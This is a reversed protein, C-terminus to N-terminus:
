HSITFVLKAGAADAGFDNIVINHVGATLTYTASEPHDGTAAAFDCNSLAVADIPDDCVFM